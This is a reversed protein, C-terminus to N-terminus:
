PLLNIELRSLVLKIIEKALPVLDDLRYEEPYEFRLMMLFRTYGSKYLPYDVCKNDNFVITVMIFHYLVRQLEREDIYRLSGYFGRLERSLLPLIDPLADILRPFVM